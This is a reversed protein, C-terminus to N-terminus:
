ISLMLPKAENVIVQMPGQEMGPLSDQQDSSQWAFSAANVQTSVVMVSLLVFWQRVFLNAIRIKACSM